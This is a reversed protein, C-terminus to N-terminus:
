HTYPIYLEMLNLETSSLDVLINYLIIENTIYKFCKNYM